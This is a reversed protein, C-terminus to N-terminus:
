MRKKMLSVPVLPNSTLKDKFSKKKLQVLQSSDTYLVHKRKDMEGYEHLHKDMTQLTGILTL